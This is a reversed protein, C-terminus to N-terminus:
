DVRVAKLRRNNRRQADFQAYSVRQGTQTERKGARVEVERSYTEDRVWMAPM